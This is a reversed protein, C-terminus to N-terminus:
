EEEHENNKKFNLMDLYGQLILVAALKDIIKAKDEYNLGTKSLVQNAAVTTLREDWLIVELGTRQKLKEAFEEAKKAREGITNNLHKPYGIIITTVQYETILEEIRSITKRIVNEQKRRIVEVGQATLLLSDSIAVGVTVSGYDLGMIRGMNSM